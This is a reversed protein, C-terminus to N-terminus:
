ATVALPTELSDWRKNIERCYLPPEISALRFCLTLVLKVSIYEAIVGWGGRQFFLYFFYKLVFVFFADFMKKDSLFINQINSM